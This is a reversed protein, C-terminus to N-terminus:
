NLVALSLEEHSNLKPILFGSKVWLELIDRKLLKMWIKARWSRQSQTAVGFKYQVMKHRRTHCRCIVSQVLLRVCASSWTEVIDVKCFFSPYLEISSLCSEKSARVSPHNLQSRQVIAFFLCVTPIRLRNKYGDANVTHVAFHIVFRWM